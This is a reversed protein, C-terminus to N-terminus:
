NVTLSEMLETIDECKELDRLIGVARDAQKATLPKLAFAACDRFKAELDAGSMDNPHRGYPLDTRHSYVAGDRMRITVLHSGAIGPTHQQMSEDWIPLVKAALALVNPDGLRDTFDSLTVSRRIAATAVHFPLSYRADMSTAPRRRDALPECLTWDVAHGVRVEISEIGEAPIDNERVVHLTADIAPHSGGCTPWPRFSVEDCGFSRGLGDVLEERRYLGGTFVNFFGRGGEFVGPTGQMGRAALLASFVGAKAPFGNMMGGIASGVNGTSGSSLRMEGTGGAQGFALGVADFMQEGNLELIHGAALAATFYGVVVTHFWDMKWDFSNGLRWAVDNAVAIATILRKGSVNGAREAMALAAPVTPGSPHLALGQYCDDYDLGHVMAGNVLAATTAPVRAGFGLITAEERGGIETMVDVLQGVESVLGSAGLIVSLTDILSRKAAEVTSAPLDDFTVKAMTEAIDVGVDRLPSRNPESAVASTRRLAM